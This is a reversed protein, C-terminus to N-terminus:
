DAPKNSFAADADEFKSYVKDVRRTLKLSGMTNRDTWYEGTLSTPKDSPGHTKLIFTGRHIESRDRVDVKPENRYVGVIQHGEGIDAPLINHAILWSSSEPTLMGLKLKSYSQEVPFFCHIPPIPEAEDPRVYNSQLEAEWTGRIDPLKVFRKFPEVRWLQHEFWLGSVVLGAVVISFPRVHSWSLPIDDIFVLYLGWLFAVLGLIVSISLRSLHVIRHWDFELGLGCVRTGTSADM